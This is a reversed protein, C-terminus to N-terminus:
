QPHPFTLGRRLCMARGIRELAVGSLLRAAMPLLVNEEQQIHQEHENVWATVLNEPLLVQEGQAIRTLIEHLSAWGADLSQHNAALTNILDTLCVPDSGAVSEILAPFLDEEEDQHHLVGATEFYRIVQKAATQAQADTGQTQLHASLRRLTACQHRIRDHCASLMELSSEPGAAPTSFGPFNKNM